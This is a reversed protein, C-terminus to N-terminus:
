CSATLNAINLINARGAKKLHLSSIIKTFIYKWASKTLNMWKYKLKKYALIFDTLAVGYVKWLIVM